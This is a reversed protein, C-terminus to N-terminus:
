SLPTIREYYYYRDTSDGVNSLWTMKSLHPLIAPSSYAFGNSCLAHTPAVQHSVKIANFYLTSISLQHGLDTPSPHIPHHVDRSHSPKYILSPIPLLPSTCTCYANEFGGVSWQHKTNQHLTSNPLTCSVIILPPSGSTNSSVGCKHSSELGRCIHIELPILLSWLSVYKQNSSTAVQFVISQELVGMDSAVM